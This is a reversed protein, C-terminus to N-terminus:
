PQWIAGELLADPGTVPPLASLRDAAAAMGMVSCLADFADESHRASALVAPPLSAFPASQLHAARAAASSKRLPGTFLRPYMEFVVPLRPPDFPWVSFGAQQLQLLHPLGRLSGTGVAGAGGIQFPSKPQIGTICIARDTARFGRWHPQRHDSPCRSGKGRGWFPPVCSALWREGEREALQWFQRVTACGQARLFWAPFSFAFDLGVALQPTQRAAAILWRCAQERTRGGEVSVRGDQWDAIRIRDRQGRDTCDGSWDVAILRMMVMGKM